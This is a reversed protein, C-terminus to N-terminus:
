FKQDPTIFSAFLHLLSPSYRPDGDGDKLKEGDMGTGTVARNFVHPSYLGKLHHPLTDLDLHGDELLRSLEKPLHEYPVQAVGRELDWFQSYKDDQLGNGKAWALQLRFIDAYTNTV